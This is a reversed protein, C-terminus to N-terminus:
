LWTRSLIRATEVRAEIKEDDAAASLVPILARPEHGQQALTRCAAVRVDASPDGLAEILFARGFAPSRHELDRVVGQRTKAIRGATGQSDGAARAM